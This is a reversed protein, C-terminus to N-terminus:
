LTRKYNGCINIVLTNKVLIAQLNKSYAYFKKMDTCFYNKKRVDNKAQLRKKM